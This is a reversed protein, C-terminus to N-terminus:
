QESARPHSVSTYEHYVDKGYGAERPITADDDGPAPFHLCHPKEIKQV